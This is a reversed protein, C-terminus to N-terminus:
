EVDEFGHDKQFQETEQTEFQLDKDMAAFLADLDEEEELPPASPIPQSYDHKQAAEEEMPPASPAYQQQYAAAQQARQWADYQAQQAAARERELREQERQLAQNQAALKARELDSKQQQLQQEKLQNAKKQEELRQRELAVRNKETEARVRETEAHLRAAVAAMENRQQEARIRALEAAEKALQMRAVERKHVDDRYERTSAVTGKVVLLDNLLEQTDHVLDTSNAYSADRLLSKLNDIAREIKEVFDFYPYATFLSANTHVVALLEAQSHKCIRAQGYTEQLQAAVKYLEIYAHHYHIFNSLGNLRTVLAFIDQQMVQIRKYLDDSKTHAIRTSLTNNEKNLKSLTNDLANLYYRDVGSEIFKVLLFENITKHSTLQAQELVMLMRNYKDTSTRCLHQTDMIVQENSRRDQALWWILGILIGAGVTAGAVLLPTKMNPNDQWWTQAANKFRSMWPPPAAQCPVAIVLATALLAIKMRASQKM